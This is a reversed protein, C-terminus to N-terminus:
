QIRGLVDGAQVLESAPVKKGGDPQIRGITVTGGIAAVEIKSDVVAMVTGPAEGPAGPRFSADFLRVIGEKLLASAGPQPDCGRILNFVIQGHHMWDIRSHEPGCPAEYTASDHDQEIRPATGERVLRVGEVLAEVGAPYLQNFYLSGVTDEPGIDVERQLIVPGTDIGEDVWFITLGTRQKGMIIPWNMATRGRHLPLLSPHYQIAGHTAADLVRKRVIDTVFAFVLLDPKLALYEQFPGDQRLSPTEIVPLGAESAAEFLPDPRAGQRPTSAAVVEEGADRLAQFVDKGFAAQGFLVIRM